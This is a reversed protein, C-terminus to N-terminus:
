PCNRIHTQFLLVQTRRSINLRRLIQQVHCKVTTLHIGLKDAIQQNSDGGCIFLAIQAQRSTLPRARFRAIKEDVQAQLIEQATLRRDRRNGM